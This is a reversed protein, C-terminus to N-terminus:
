APNPPVTPLSCQVITGSPSAATITLDGGIMRARRKMTLLGVGTGSGPSHDPIGCGQDQIRLILRSGEQQLSLHVSAGTNHRVANAVAEQAIRYLQTGTSPDPLCVDEEGEFTCPVQHLRETARALEALANILGVADIMAPMLGRSMERAHQNAETLGKVVEALDAAAPHGAKELRHQVAGALCGIGAMRQCLDDHIDQGIRQKEEESIQLVRAELEKRETLDRIIGTFIRRGDPLRVEGVSLDIPFVTGDKRRAVAERGIGIIRKQGTRRYHEVYGDHQSRYPEPMLMAVNQGILEGETYGFIKTTASNVTEILRDESMTIIANVATELVSRSRQEMENLALRARELETVDRGISLTGAAEGAAGPLATHFWEIRRLGGNAALFHKTHVDGSRQGAVMWGCLRRTAAQDEPPIFTAIWDKSRAEELSLGGLIEVARNFWIIRDAEDSQLVLMGSHAMLDRLVQSDSSSRLSSPPKASDSM